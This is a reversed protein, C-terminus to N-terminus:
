PEPSARFTAPTEVVRSAEVWPALGGVVLDDVPTAQYQQRVLEIATLLFNAFQYHHLQCTKMM